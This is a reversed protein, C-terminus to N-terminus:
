QASTTDTRFPRLLLGAGNEVSLLPNFAWAYRVAAPAPIEDSWLVIDQGEIRGQAWVWTQGRLAFGRLGGDGRLRM